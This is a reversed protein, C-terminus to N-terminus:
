KEYYTIVKHKEKSYDKVNLFIENDILKNEIEEYYSM